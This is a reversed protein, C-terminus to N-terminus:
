RLTARASMSPWSSELKRDRRLLTIGASSPLLMPSTVFDRGHCCALGGLLPCGLGPAPSAEGCLSIDMIPATLKLMAMPSIRPMSPRRQISRGSARRSRLILFIPPRVHTRCWGGFLVDELSFPDDFGHRFIAQRVLAFICVDRDPCLVGTKMCPASRTWGHVCIRGTVTGV